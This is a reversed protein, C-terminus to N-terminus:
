RYRFSLEIMNAADALEDVMEDLYAAKRM